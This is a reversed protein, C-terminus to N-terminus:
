FGARQKRSKAKVACEAKLGECLQEASPSLGTLQLRRKAAVFDGPTLEPLSATKTQWLRSESEELSIGWEKLVASFLEFAQDPRLYDLRIKLDFRRFVAGDLTEVLNTCCFFLGDFSEMQVLLENVQTVEWSHHARMREQLFSDAEDLLLITREESAERFMSALGQETQGVYPGLIDSARRTLVPRDLRGALYHVFATKGSGPPGYLCVKANPRTNCARVLSELDFDANTFRLDFPHSARNVRAQVRRFGMAKQTNDILRCLTSELSEEDSIGALRTVKVAKEIHSPALYENGAMEEICGDKVPLDSLINELIRRRAKRPPVSMEFVMDFRRVFAADMQDVRNTIWIGPVPNTELLRNTWGKHTGSKLTPVLLSEWAPFVDEMEDFLILCDKRRSFLRQCLLYSRFRRSEDLADGDEDTNSVEYLKLGLDRATLRALETKGTGPPGYVLINVGCTGSKVANALFPYLVEIDSNLHEYDSRNLQPAPAKQFYLSLMSEIEENPDQLAGCLGDLPELRQYICMSSGRDLQLLGTSCLPGDRRFAERVQPLKLKLIGALEDFLRHISIDGLQDTATRLGPEDRLLLSFILVERESESLGVMRSLREVNRLFLGKRVGPSSELEKLKLSFQKKLERRSIDSGILHEVRVARLIEEDEWDHMSIFKSSARPRLLARLTWTVALQEVDNLKKKPM